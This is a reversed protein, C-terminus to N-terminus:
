AGFIITKVFGRPGSPLQTTIDNDGGVREQFEALSLVQGRRQQQKKGM